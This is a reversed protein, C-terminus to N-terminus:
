SENLVLEAAPPLLLSSFLLLGTCSNGFCTSFLCFVCCKEEDLKPLTLQKSSRFVVAPCCYTTASLSKQGMVPDLM